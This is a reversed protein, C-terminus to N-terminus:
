RGVTLYAVGTVALAVGAALFALGVRRGTRFVANLPLWFPFASFPRACRYCRITRGVLAVEARNYFQCTPCAALRV